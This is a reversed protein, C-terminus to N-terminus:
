ATGLRAIAQNTLYKNYVDQSGEGYGSQYGGKVEKAQVFRTMRNAQVDHSAAAVWSWAPHGQADKITVKDNSYQAYAPEFSKWIAGRRDYTVYAVYMGNRVDIWIRKKGVPARPYGTPEAELVICEPVLEMWVDHFTQNKPGGHVTREYNDNYGGMFNRPGIAGLMPKREIIKYNGWTLMPDGAAWADSLFFTVGPVLPEFRQNTPFQRVRRFAPLYGYLDPFKRQDYYWTNLYSSGATDQPSTFWVSQYRLLDKKGNWVKGDARATTNLEAWVFDYQYAISGDPAIDWDRVAYMSYDHRGWSLTLNAMAEVGNQPDTFPNGGIWPEGNDTYVNGVSDLKARGKNKLTAELYSAPFLKTVDKTSEVINIKRGMTKVQQYAIPDLLDKVAEVNNATIVDGPKVKGKTYAEISLLEDPYAKSADGAKAILPWLPALVGAAAVGKITKELLMRRGYDFDYKKIWM